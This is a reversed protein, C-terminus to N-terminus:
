YRYAKPNAMIPHEMEVAMITIAMVMTIIIKVMGMMAVVIIITTEV